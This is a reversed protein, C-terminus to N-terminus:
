KGERVKRVRQLNDYSHKWYRSNFKEAELSKKYVMPYDREWGRIFVVWMFEVEELTAQKNLEKCVQIFISAMSDPVGVAIASWNDEDWPDNMSGIHFNNQKENYSLSWLNETEIKTTPQQTKTKMTTLIKIQFQTYHLLTIYLLAAMYFRGVLTKIM